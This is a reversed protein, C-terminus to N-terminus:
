ASIRLVQCKVKPKSLLEHCLSVIERRMFNVEYITMGYRESIRWNNSREDSLALVLRRLGEPGYRSELKDIKSQM